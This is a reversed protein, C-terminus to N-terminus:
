TEQRHEILAALTGIAVLVDAVQQAHLDIGFPSTLTVLAGVVAAATVPKRLTVLDHVFSKIFKM